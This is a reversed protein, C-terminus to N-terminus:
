FTRNGVIPQVVHFEEGFHRAHTAEGIEDMIYNDGILDEMMQDDV